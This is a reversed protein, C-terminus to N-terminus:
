LLTQNLNEWFYIVCLLIGNGPNNHNWKGKKSIELHFSFSFQSLPLFSLIYIVQVSSYMTVYYCIIAEHVLHWYVYFLVNWSHVGKALNVNDSWPSRDKNELFLLILWSHSSAVVIPVYRYRCVILQITVCEPSWLLM